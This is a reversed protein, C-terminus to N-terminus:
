KYNLFSNKWVNYNANKDDTILVIKFVNKYKNFLLKKLCSSVKKIDQKYVNCGFSSMVLVDVNNVAAISLIFDLRSYLAEDNEEDTFRKYRISM